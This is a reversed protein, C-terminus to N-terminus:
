VVLYVGALSVGAIVLTSVISLVIPGSGSNLLQRLRVGTGMGFLAAALAITQLQEIVALLGAPVVGTSRVGVCVLFALVFFPVLPPLKSGPGSQNAQTTDVTDAPNTLDRQGRRQRYRRTASVGAVVPALMLVRTLKVVVAVAVAASGAPSAAAVVQGVEHVSAGAWVGFEENSLGLPAQLLPLAIMAATGCLTVMAIAVAVDDDDAEANEEMAAIASAGCIAFGTGILLSRAHGLSMRHGLWTTLLLTTLLTVVVLAIVPAGLAGIAVLSLSFGLLVIGLRLLKRTAYDLGPVAVAPLIGVNAVVAGILVAWTLVGVTEVVSHALLALAVGAIIVPLGPLLARWDVPSAQSVKSTERPTQDQPSSDELHMHDVQGGHTRCTGPSRYRWAASLSLLM